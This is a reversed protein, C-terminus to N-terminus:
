LYAHRSYPPPPSMPSVPIEESGRRLPRNANRNDSVRLVSQTNIQSSSQTRPVETEPLYMTTYEPPRGSDTPRISPSVCTDIPAINRISNQQNRESYRASRRASRQSQYSPPRDTPIERAYPPPRAPEVTIARTFSTEHFTQAPM